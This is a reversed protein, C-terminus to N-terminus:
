HYVGDLASVGLVTFRTPMALTGRALKYPLEFQGITMPMVPQTIRECDGAVFFRGAMSPHPHALPNGQHWM